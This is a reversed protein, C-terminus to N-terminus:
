GVRQFKTRAQRGGAFFFSSPGDAKDRADDAKEADRQARCSPMLEAMSGRNISIKNEDPEGLQKPWREVVMARIENCYPLESIEHAPGKRRGRAGGGRV